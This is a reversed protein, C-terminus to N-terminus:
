CSWTDERASAFDEPFYVETVTPAYHTKYEKNM